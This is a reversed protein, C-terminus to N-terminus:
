NKNSLSSLLQSFETMSYPKAVAARFGYTTFDAMIPDNSYGSSVILCAAQDIALIQQATEKGGMGAPITLDMIVAAFPNGSDMAAKYLAVAEIGEVCTTARYGLYDLMEATMDRIIDEDDMVLISEGKHSGADITPRDTQDGTGTVETSPLYITFASGTGVTSTAKINGSHRSIISHVSALGLGTGTSKTTFYPDFIKQLDDASIGCGNDVISIRAYMGAPLALTNNIALNENRATITVTGGGPMAQTANIIINNLVQSIQGEDAEIAQLSDSIDFVGKVNSGSLTLSVSERILQQVSIVKKVPEGGRAFTLLQQALEGARVSAKEAETLRKYSKHTPDLLMLAFSINGMIGTLINNFDHAIGGALVGLSELKEIKLLEKEHEKRETIERTIGHYGVIHGEENREPTSSIEAWLLNGDKCKHEAEFTETGTKIGRFEAELRKCMKEKIKSIGEETFLEFFHHGIVEEVKFGRLREDAPSIYTFRNESNVRWVVDSANETLLRYYAESERLLKQSIEYEEIQVRLKEETALLEDNQDRLSEENVMLEENQEQLKDNLSLLAEEAQKRDTIDRWNTHLLDKGDISIPTLTVEVPIPSGDIRTHNWEFRHYGTKLATAIMESAKEESSRGDPQYQPSIDSPSCSLFDQKAAYGLLRLLSSNCDIFRGDKLLSIPDNIDEFLSRFAAESERLKEEVEFQRAYQLGQEALMQTLGRIFTLNKFLTAETFLPVKRVAELYESEDFGYQHAQKIFYPEDPPEIFFRGTLVNGLHTGEIIIPMAAKVLGMPCRYVVHPCKESLRAEIHRDSEICLKGAGSNVRHFKTCLDQWGTSTLINGETDTIASPMCDREGLSDLLARLSTVDLLERLIYDNGGQRSDANKKDIGVNM